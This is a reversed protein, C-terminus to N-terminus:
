LIASPGGKKGNGGGGASGSGGGAGSLAVRVAQEFVNKLGDQTFSSCEVYMKAGVESALQEGDEKTFPEADDPKRSPDSRLDTKTGVVIIHASVCHHKLEPIWQQKVNEYSTPNVVSYCILFVDTDPYSLARLRKYEEQGATDWLDVSYPKGDVSVASMHNDFVTPVYDIPFRNEIYSILMATKGVAGDGVVVIKINQQMINRCPLSHPHSKPSQEFKNSKKNKEKKKKEKKKKKGERREEM